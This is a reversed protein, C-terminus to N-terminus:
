DVNEKFLNPDGIDPCLEQIVNYEVFQSMVQHLYMSFSDIFSEDLLVEEVSAKGLMYLIAHTLEHLVTTEALDEHLNDSYVILLKDYYIHGVTTGAVLEHSDHTVAEITWNLGAIKINSPIKM